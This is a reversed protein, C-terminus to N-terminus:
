RIFIVDPDAPSFVIQNAEPFRGNARAEGAFTMWALASALAAHRLKV